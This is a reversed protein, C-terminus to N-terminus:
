VVVTCISCSTIRKALLLISPLRSGKERLARTRGLFLSRRIRFVSTERLVLFIFLRLRFDFDIEFFEDLFSM